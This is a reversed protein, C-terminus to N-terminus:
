VIRPTPAATQTKNQTTNTEKQIQYHQSLKAKDTLDKLAEEDLSSEEIAYNNTENKEKV